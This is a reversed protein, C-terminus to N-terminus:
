PAIQVVVGSHPLGASAAGVGSGPVIRHGHLRVGPGLFALDIPWRPGLWGLREVRSAPWTPRRDEAALRLRGPLLAEFATSWSPTNFDGIVLAPEAWRGPETPQGASAFTTVAPRVSRMIARRHLLVNSPLDVVWVVFSAGDRELELALVAASGWDGASGSLPVWVRPLEFTASANIPNRSAVLFRGHSVLLAEAGLAARQMEVIDARSRYAPNAVIIVDSSPAITPSYAELPVPRNGANVFSLAFTTGSAAIVEAEPVAAARGLAMAGASAAGLAALWRGSRCPGSTLRLAAAAVAFAVATLGVPGLALWAIPEIMPVRDMGSWRALWPVAFAWAAVTLLRGVGRVIRPGLHKVHFM